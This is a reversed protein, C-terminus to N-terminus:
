NNQQIFDTVLKIYVKQKRPQVLEDVKAESRISVWLITDMWEAVDGQM